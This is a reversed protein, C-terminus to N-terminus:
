PTDENVSFSAGTLVSLVRLTMVMWIIMDSSGDKPDESIWESWENDIGNVLLFDLQALSLTKKNMRGATCECAAQPRDITTNGKRTVALVYEDQPWVLSKLGLGNGVTRFSFFFVTM